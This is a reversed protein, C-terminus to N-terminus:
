CVSLRFNNQLYDRLRVQFHTAKSGQTSILYVITERAHKIDEDHYLGSLIAYGQGETVEKLVTEEEITDNLRFNAIEVRYEKRPDNLQANENCLSKDSKGWFPFMLLLIVGIQHRVEM